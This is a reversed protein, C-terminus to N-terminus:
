KWSGVKIRAANVGLGLLFVAVIAGVVQAWLPASPFLFMPLLAVATNAAIALLIFAWLKLYEKVSMEREGQEIDEEM